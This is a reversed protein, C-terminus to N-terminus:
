MPRRPAACLATFERQLRELVARRTQPGSSDGDAALNEITHALIPNFRNLAADGDSLSMEPRTITDKVRQGEFYIRAMDPYYGYHNYLMDLTRSFAQIEQSEASEASTGSAPGAARDLSAKVRRELADYLDNFSSDLEERRLFRPGRWIEGGNGTQQRCLDNMDRMLRLMNERSFVCSQNDRFDEPLDSSSLGGFLICTIGDAIASLRGKEYRIWELTGDLSESTICFVAYGSRSLIDELDSRWDAGYDIFLDSQYATIYPNVLSIWNSLVRALSKSTEKSWGIFIRM